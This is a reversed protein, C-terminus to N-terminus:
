RVMPRPRIEDARGGWQAVYKKVQEYHYVQVTDKGKEPKSYGLWFYLADYIASNERLRTVPNYSRGDPQVRSRPTVILQEIEKAYQLGITLNEKDWPLSSGALRIERKPTVKVATQVAALSNLTPTDTDSTIWRGFDASANDHLWESLDSEDAGADKLEYYPKLAQASIKKLKTMPDANELGLEDRLQLNYVFVKAGAPDDRELRRLYDAQATEVANWDETTMAGHKKEIALQTIANYENERRRVDNLPLEKV